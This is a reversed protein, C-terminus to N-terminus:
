VVIAVMIATHPGDSVVSLCWSIDFKPYTIRQQFHVITITYDLISNTTYRKLM